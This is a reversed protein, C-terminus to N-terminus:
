QHVAWRWARGVKDRVHMITLVVVISTAVIVAVYLPSAYRHKNLLSSAAEYGIEGLLIASWRLIIPLLSYFTWMWFIFLSGPLGRHNSQGLAVRWNLYLTRRHGVETIGAFTAATFWVFLFAPAVWIAILFHDFSWGALLCYPIALLVGTFFYLIGFVLYM